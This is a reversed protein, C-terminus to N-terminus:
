TRVVARVSEGVLDLLPDQLDPQLAPPSRGPDREQEPEVRGGHVLDQDTATHGTQSVDVPGGALRDAAVFVRGGAIEHM